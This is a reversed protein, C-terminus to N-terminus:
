TRRAVAWAAPGAPRESTFRSNLSRKKGTPDPWKTTSANTSNRINKPCNRSIGKCHWAQVERKPGSLLDSDGPATVGEEAWPQCETFRGDHRPVRFGQFFLPKHHADAAGGADGVSNAQQIRQRFQSDLRME